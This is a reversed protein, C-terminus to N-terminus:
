NYVRFHEIIANLAKTYTIENLKSFEKLFKDNEFDININKRIPKKIKM